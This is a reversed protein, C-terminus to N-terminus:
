GKLYDDVEKESVKIGMEAAKILTLAIKANRRERYVKQSLKHKKFAEFEKMEKDSLTTAM